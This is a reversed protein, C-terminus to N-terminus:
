EVIALADKAVVPILRVTIQALTAGREVQVGCKECAPTESPEHIQMWGCAPCQAVQFTVQDVWRM